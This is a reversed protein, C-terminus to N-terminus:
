AVWSLWEERPKRTSQREGGVMSRKNSSLLHCDPSLARAESVWAGGLARAVACWDVDDTGYGATGRYPPDIYKVWGPKVSRPSLTDPTLVLHGAALGRCHEVIWRMRELISGGQYYAPPKV